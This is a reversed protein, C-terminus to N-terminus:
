NGSTKPGSKRPDTMLWSIAWGAVMFVVVLGFAWHFGAVDVLYGVLFSSAVPPIAMCIMLTSLYVPQKDRTTLELAYNKLVRMTIPTMGLVVFVCVFLNAGLSGMTSFWLALLPAGCLLGLFLRLVLLNGFRDALSGAPFSLLGVGINQAILWPILSTLNLDLRQLALAQYHPFLTISMGFSGAVIALLRFQRDGVLTSWAV